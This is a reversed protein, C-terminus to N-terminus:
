SQVTRVKLSPFTQQLTYYMICHSGYDADTVVDVAGEKTEGKSQENVNKDHFKIVVQGGKEAINIAAVLLEKLSVDTNATRRGALCYLILIFSLGCLVAFGVPNLKVTGGLNM